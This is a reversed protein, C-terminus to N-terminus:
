NNKKITLIINDNLYIIMKNKIIYKKNNNLFRQILNQKLLNQNNM